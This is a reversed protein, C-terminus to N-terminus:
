RSGRKVLGLRAAAFLPMPFRGKVEHSKPEGTRVECKVCVSSVGVYDVAEVVRRGLADIEEDHVGELASGVGAHIPFIRLKRVTLGVGFRGDSRRYNVYSYNQDDPGLIEEQVLLPGGLDRLRSFQRVAEDPSNARMAKIPGFRARFLPDLWQDSEAPKLIVPYSLSPARSALEEPNEPIFAAPAPIGHRATFQAFQIKDLVTEVRDDHPLRFRCFEGLVDRHASVLRLM